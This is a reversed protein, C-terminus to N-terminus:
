WNCPAKHYFICDKDIGLFMHAIVVHTITILSSASFLLLQIYSHSSSALSNEIAYGYLNFVFPM